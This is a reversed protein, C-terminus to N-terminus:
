PFFSFCLGRPEPLSTAHASQNNFSGEARLAYQYRITGKRVFVVVVGTPNQLGCGFLFDVGFM